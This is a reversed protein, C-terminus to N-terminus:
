INVELITMVSEDSSTPLTFEVIEHDAIFKLFKLKAATLALRFPFLRETTGM